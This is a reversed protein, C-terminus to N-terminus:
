GALAHTPYEGPHRRAAEPQRLDARAAEGLGHRVQGQVERDMGEEAPAALPHRGARLLRLVAKRARRREPQEHVQHGRGGHRHHPQLGDQRGVPLDPDHETCTLRGSTPRAAWSDTSTSSAWASRGSTSHDPWATCIPRRTTTRASGRRPM